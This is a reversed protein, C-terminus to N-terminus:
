ALHPMVESGFIERTEADNPRDAYILLDIGADQYQGIL